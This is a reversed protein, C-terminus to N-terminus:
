ILFSVFNAESNAGFGSKLSEAFDIFQMQTDVNAFRVLNELLYISEIAKCFPYKEEFISLPNYTLGVSRQICLTPVGNLAADVLAGTGLGVAADCNELDFALTSNSWIWDAPFKVIETEKLLRNKSIMPHNRFKIRMGLEKLQQENRLFITLLELAGGIEMPLLVLVTSSCNETDKIKPIRPKCQLNQRIAPGKRLRAEPFGNAMLQSSAISGNTVFFDPIAPQSLELESINYGLLDENFLTHQYGITKANPFNRKLELNPIRENVMNEFTDIFLDCKNGKKKWKRIAPGILWFPLLEAAFFWDRKEQAILHRIDMSEFTNPITLKSATLLIKLFSCIIDHFSIFSEPVLLEFGSAKIQKLKRSYSSNANFFWPLLTVSYGQKKLFCPLDGFYRFVLKGNTNLSSEDFFSHLIVNKDRNKNNKRETRLDNGYFSLRSIISRYIVLLLYYCYKAVGFGIFLFTRRLKGFFDSRVAILIKDNNSLNEQIAKLLYEDHCIIVLCSSKLNELVVLISKLLLINSYLKSVQTTRGSMHTMWWQDSFSNNKGVNAIFDVYIKRFNANNSRYIDTISICNEDGLSKQFKSFRLYDESLYIWKQRSACRLKKDFRTTLTLIM